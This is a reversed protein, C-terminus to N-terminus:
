IGVSIMGFGFIVHMGDYAEATHVMIDLWINLIDDIFSKAEVM